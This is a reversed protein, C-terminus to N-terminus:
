DQVTARNALHARHIPSEMTLESGTDGSTRVGISCASDRNIRQKDYGHRRSRRASRGGRAVSEIRKRSKDALRPITPSNPRPGCPDRDDRSNGHGERTSYRRRLIPASPMQRSRRIASSGSANRATRADSQRCESQTARRQEAGSQAQMEKSRPSRSRGRDSQGRYAPTFRSNTSSRTGILPLATRVTCKRVPFRTISFLDVRIIALQTGEVAGTNCSWARVTRSYSCAAEFTRITM